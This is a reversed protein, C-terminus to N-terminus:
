VGVVPVKKWFDVDAEDLTFFTKVNVTSNHYVAGLKDNSLLLRVFPLLLLYWRRLHLITSGNRAQETQRFYANM